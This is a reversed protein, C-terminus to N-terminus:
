HPAVETFKPQDVKVRMGPRKHKQCRRNPMFKPSGRPTRLTFREGCHACHSRWVLLETDTGDRRVYPEARVFDYRQGNYIKHM